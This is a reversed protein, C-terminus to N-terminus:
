KKIIGLIGEISNTLQVFQTISLSEGRINSDIGLEKLITCIKGKDISLSNSNSLSNILTKRRQSFSAKVVDIFLKKNHVKTMSNEYGKFRIVTSSIKPKPYFCHPPINFLVEPKCFYQIAIALPGYENTGPKATIRDVVEKQVMIVITNINVSSELLKMIIPTTIYYPLNGVIKLSQPMDNLYEYLENEINLELFDKNIIKVTEYEKFVNKLPAILHKDIEVAIFKDSKKAIEKSLAGFGAGIEILTDKENINLADVICNLAFDDILFNQGLSKTPKINYKNFLDKFFNDKTNQEM